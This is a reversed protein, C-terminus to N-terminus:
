LGLAKLDDDTLGLAALKARASVKPLEAQAQEAAQELHRAEFLALQELEETTFPRDTITGDLAVERHILTM